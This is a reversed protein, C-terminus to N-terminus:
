GADGLMPPPSAPVKVGQAVLVAIREQALRAAATNPALSPVESLAKAGEDTKGQLLLIRARHYLGMGKMFDTKTEKALQDFAALAKDYDKASELAYGKGELAAPRLPDNPDSHALYDDFAATAESGKGQRLLAEGLLLGANGASRTGPHAARFDSLAKVEADLKETESKFPTEDTSQSDGAEGSAKVEREIVKLSAGLDQKAAAEKRDGFYSSLAAVGAVLVGGVVVTVLSKQHQVLFPVAQAGIKQFEDPAKLEKRTLKEAKEAM